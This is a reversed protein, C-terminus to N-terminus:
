SQCKRYVECGAGQLHFVLQSMSALCQSSGALWCGPRAPADAGPRVPEEEGQGACPHLFFLHFSLEHRRLCPFVGLVRSVTVWFQFLGFARLGSCISLRTVTSVSGLVHGLSCPLEGLSASALCWCVGVPRDAAQLDGGGGVGLCVSLSVTQILFASKAM